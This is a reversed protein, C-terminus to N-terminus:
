YKTEKEGEGENREIGKNEKEGRHRKTGVLQTDASIRTVLEGSPHADHFAIDQRMLAAYVDRRLHAEMRNGASQILLVRGFNALGGIAFVGLLVKSFATIRSLTSAPDSLDGFLMDFVRGISFPVSMTVASSVVLLCMAGVCATIM